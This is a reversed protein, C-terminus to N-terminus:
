TVEQGTPALKSNEPVMNQGKITMGPDLGMPALM